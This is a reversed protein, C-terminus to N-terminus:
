ASQEAANQLQETESVSLVRNTDLLITVSEGTKGIGLIFETDVGSEFAPPEQIDIAAIDLVDRVEDITLGMTVARTGLDVFAVIICTRETDEAREMGFKTRLDLVPIVRGRLNIVGRVYEPARPIRTTKQMPIIEKVKKIQLGYEEGALRFTLYKGALRLGLETVEGEKEQSQRATSVM